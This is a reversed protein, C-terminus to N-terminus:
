RRWPLEAIDIVIAELVPLNSTASSAPMDLARNWPVIALPVEAPTAAQIERVWPIAAISANVLTPHEFERAWPIAAINANVLPANDLEQRWPVTALLIKSKKAPAKAPEPPAAQLTWTTGVIILLYVKFIKCVACHNLGTRRICRNYPTFVTYLINLIKTKEM